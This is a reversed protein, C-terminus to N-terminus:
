EFHDGADDFLGCTCVEVGNAVIAVEHIGARQQEAFYQYEGIRRSIMWNGILLSHKRDKDECLEAEAARRAHELEFRKATQQAFRVDDNYRPM